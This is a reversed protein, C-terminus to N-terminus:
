NQQLVNLKRLYKQLKKPFASLGLAENNPFAMDENQTFLFKLLAGM